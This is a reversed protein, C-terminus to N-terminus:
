VWGTGFSDPPLTGFYKVRKVGTHYEELLGTRMHLAQFYLRKGCDELKAFAGIDGSVMM